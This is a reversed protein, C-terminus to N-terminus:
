VAVGVEENEPGDPEKVSDESKRKEELERAKRESEVRKRRRRSKEWCTGAGGVVVIGGVIGVM